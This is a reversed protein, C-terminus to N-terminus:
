GGWLRNLDNYFALLMLMALLAIGLRQMQMQVEDSLPSGKVIEVLYYMLHGGDLLPIPLLNLVGLSISIIALFYLFSTIGVSASYGAYTAITIPGSLNKVSVEGVIMKGIMRLTLSSMQWTKSLAEGVAAIPGFRVETRMEDPLPGVPAPAAGIRGIVGSDTTHSAVHVDVTQEVGDREIQLKVTQEPHARVFEVLQMWDKIPEGDAALIRDGSKLGAKAAAGDPSLEGLVPPYDMRWPTIGVYRLLDRQKEEAPIAAVPLVLQRELGDDGRVRLEVVDQDLSKDLLTLHATNWTPTAVGDVAIIEDGARFGAEAAISAPAVEGIVPKVGPVGLMYMLWFAIIAFIFNFIPGAAVIAIRRWVSQNNFARHREAEPVEGEREDLMKVYGGLPFAAIVYETDDPGHRRSWLPKGFGISFRLVKVGLKRATWFHGFEHFAILLGLTVILALVSTIFSSM